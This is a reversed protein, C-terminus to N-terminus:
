MKQGALVLVWNLVMTPVMAPEWRCEKEIDWDYEMLLVM